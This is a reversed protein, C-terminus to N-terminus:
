KNVCYISLVVMDYSILIEKNCDCTCWIGFLKTYHFTGKCLCISTTNCAPHLSQRISYLQQTGWCCADGSWHAKLKVDYSSLLAIKLEGHGQTVYAFLTFPTPHFPFIREEDDMIWVTQTLQSLPFFTFVFQHQKIQCRKERLRPAQLKQLYEESREWQLNLNLFSLYWSWRQTDLAHKYVFVPLVPFISAWSLWFLFVHKLLDFASAQELSGSNGSIQETIWIYRTKNQTLTIERTAFCFM